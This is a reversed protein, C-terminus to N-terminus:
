RALPRTLDAVGCQGVGAAGVAGDDVQVAGVGGAPAPPGDDVFQAGLPAVDGEVLAGAAFRLLGGLDIDFQVLDDGVAVGDEVVGVDLHARLDGTIVGVDHSLVEAGDGSGNSFGGGRVVTCIM